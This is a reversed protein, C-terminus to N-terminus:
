GSVRNLLGGECAEVNVSFFDADGGEALAGAHNVRLQNGVGGHQNVHEGIGGDLWGQQIAVELRSDFHAEVADGHVAVGRGVVGDQQEGGSGAADGESRAVGLEGGGEGLDAGRQGTLHNGVAFADGMDHFQVDFACGGVGVGELNGLGNCVRRQDLCGPGAAIGVPAAQGGGDAVGARLDIGVAEVNM